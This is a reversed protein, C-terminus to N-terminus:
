QHPVKYRRGQQHKKMKAEGVDRPTPALVINNTVAIGSSNPCEIPHGEIYRSLMNSAIAVGSANTGSTKIATFHPHANGNFVNNLIALGSCHGGDGIDLSLETSYCDSFVNAALSISSGLAVRVVAEEGGSDCNEIQNGSVTVGHCMSLDIASNNWGQVRGFVNGTVTTFYARTLKLACSGTGFYTHFHNGTIEGHFADHGPNDVLLGISPNPGDHQGYSLFTNGTVQHYNCSSTMVGQVPESLNGNFSNGSIFVERYLHTKVARTWAGLNFQSDTVWVNRHSVKPQGRFDLCTAWDPGKSTSVVDIVCNEVRAETANVTILSAGDAPVHWQLACDRMTFRTASSEVTLLGVSGRTTVVIRTSPGSGAITTNPNTLTVPSTVEYRGPLIVIHGGSAPLASIAKALPLVKGTLHGKSTEGDGITIMGRSEAAPTKDVAFGSAAVIVAAILWRM